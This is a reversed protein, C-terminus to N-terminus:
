SIHYIWRNHHAIIVVVILYPVSCPPAFVRPHIDFISGHKNTKLHSVAENTWQAIWECVLGHMTNQPVIWVHRYLCCVYILWEHLNVNGYLDLNSPNRAHAVWVCVCVNPIFFSRVDSVLYVVNELSICVLYMQCMEDILIWEIHTLPAHLECIVLFGGRATQASSCRLGM